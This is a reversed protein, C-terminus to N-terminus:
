SEQGGKLETLERLREELIPMREAMEKVVGGLHFMSVIPEKLRYIYDRVLKGVREDGQELEKMANAFEASEYICFAEFESILHSIREM